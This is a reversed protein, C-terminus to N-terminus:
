PQAMITDDYLAIRCAKPDIFSTPHLQVKDMDILAAGIDECMQLMANACKLPRVQLLKIDM